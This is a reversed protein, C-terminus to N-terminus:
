FPTHPPLDVRKSKIENKIDVNGDRALFGEVLVVDLFERNFFIGYYPHLKGYRLICSVKRSHGKKRVPPCM